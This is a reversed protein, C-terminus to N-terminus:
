DTFTVQGYYEPVDRRLDRSYAQPLWVRHVDGITFQLNGLIRWEREMYYNEGDDLPKQAHFAKGFSLVQYSLETHLDFLTRIDREVDQPIRREPDTERRNAVARQLLTCHLKHLQGLLTDLCEARPGRAPLGLDSPLVSHLMIQAPSDAGIYFVPTAGREVLFSRRFSLGFRSYKRMHIALDALPIDCFCVVGPHYMEGRSFNGTGQISFSGPKSRDHPPHTLWKECLVKALLEYRQDDCGLSRGVFHTLKQSVYRQPLTNWM